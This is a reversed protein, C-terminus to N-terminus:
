IEKIRWRENAGFCRIGNQDAQKIM